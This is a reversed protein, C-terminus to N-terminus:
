SAQNEKEEGDGNQLSEGNKNFMKQAQRAIRCKEELITQRREEAKQQKEKLEEATLNNQNQEELR